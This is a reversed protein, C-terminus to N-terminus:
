STTASNMSSNAENIYTELAQRLQTTDTGLRDLENLLQQLQEISPRTEVSDINEVIQEQEATRAILDESEEILKEFADARKKSEESQFATKEQLERLEKKKKELEEKEVKKEREKKRKDLEEKYKRKRENDFKRLQKYLDFAQGNLPSVYGLWILQLAKSSGRVLKECGSFTNYTNNILNGKDKQVERWKIILNNVITIAINIDEDSKTETILLNSITDSLFSGTNIKHKGSVLQLMELLKIYYNFDVSGRKSKWSYFMKVLESYYLISPFLQSQKIINEPANPIELGKASPDTMKKYLVKFYNSMETNVIIPLNKELYSFSGFAISSNLEGITPLRLAIDMIQSLKSFRQLDGMDTIKLKNDQSEGVMDKLGKIAGIITSEEDINGDGYLKIPFQFGFSIQPLKKELKNIKVIIESVEIM